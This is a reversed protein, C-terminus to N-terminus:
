EKRKIVHKEPLQNHFRGGLERCRPRHYVVVEGLARLAEHVSSWATATKSLHFRQSVHDTFARSNGILIDGDEEWIFQRKKGDVGAYCDIIYSLIEPREYWKM